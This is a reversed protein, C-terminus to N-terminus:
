QKAYMIEVVMISSQMNISRDVHLTSQYYGYYQYAHCCPIVTENVRVTSTYYTIIVDDVILSIVDYNWMCHVQSSLCYTDCTPLAPVEQSLTLTLTPAPGDERNADLSVHWWLTSWPM